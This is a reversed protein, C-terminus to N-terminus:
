IVTIYEGTITTIPEGTVTTLANVPVGGSVVPSRSGALAFLKHAVSIIRSM